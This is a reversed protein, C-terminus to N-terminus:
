ESFIAVFTASGMVHDHCLQAFIKKLLLPTAAFSVSLQVLWGGPSPDTQSPQTVANCLWTRVRRIRAMCGGPKRCAMRKGTPRLQRAPAPIRAGARGTTAPGAAQYVDYGGGRSRRVEGRQARDRGAACAWRRRMTSSTSSSSPAASTPPVSLRRRRTPVVGEVVGVLGGVVVGGVV